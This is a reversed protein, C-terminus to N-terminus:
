PVRNRWLIVLVWFSIRIHLVRISATLLSSGSCMSFMRDMARRIYQQQVRLVEQKFQHFFYFHYDITPKFHLLRTFPIDANAGSNLGMKWYRYLEVENGYVAVPYNLGGKGQIKVQGCVGLSIFFVSFLIRNM